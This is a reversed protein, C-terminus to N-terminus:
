GNEGADLGFMSHFNSCCQRLIRCCMSFMLPLSSVNLLSLLCCIIYDLGPIGRKCNKGM